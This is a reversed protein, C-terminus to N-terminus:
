GNFGRFPVYSKSKPHFLRVNNCVSFLGLNYVRSRFCQLSDIRPHIDRERERERETYIYIIYIYIYICICIYGPVLAHMRKAEECGFLPLYSVDRPTETTKPSKKQKKTKFKKKAHRLVLEQHMKQIVFFVALASSPSGPVVTLSPNTRAPSLPM